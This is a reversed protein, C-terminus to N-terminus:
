SITALTGMLAIEIVAISQSTMRIKMLRQTCLQESLYLTMMQLRVSKLPVIAQPLGGPPSRGDASYQFTATPRGPGLLRNEALISIKGFM